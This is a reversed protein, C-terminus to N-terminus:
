AQERPLLDALRTRGDGGYPICEEDWRYFKLQSAKTVEVGVTMDLPNDSLIDNREDSAVQYAHTEDEAMVIAIFEFTVPFAKLKKESM